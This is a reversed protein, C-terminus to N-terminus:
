FSNANMDTNAWQDFFKGHYHNTGRRHRVLHVDHRGPLTQARAPPLFRSKKWPDMRTPAFEYFEIGGSKFRQSNNNIGDLTINM